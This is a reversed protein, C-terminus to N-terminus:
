RGNAYVKFGCKRYEATKKKLETISKCHDLRMEAQGNQEVAYIGFPVEPSAVNALFRKYEAQNMTYTKGGILVIM